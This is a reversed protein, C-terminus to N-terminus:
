LGMQERFLVSKRESVEVQEDTVLTIRLKGKPLSDVKEIMELNIIEARNCRFFSAKDLREEM